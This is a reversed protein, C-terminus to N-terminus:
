QTVHSFVVKTTNLAKYYMLRSNYESVYSNLSFLIYTWGYLVIIILKEDIHTFPFRNCFPFSNSIMFICTFILGATCAIAMLKWSHLYINCINMSSVILPVGRVIFQTHTNCLLLELSIQSTSM